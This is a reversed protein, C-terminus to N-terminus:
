RVGKTIARIRPAVRGVIEYTSDHKPSPGEENLVSRIFTTENQIKLVDFVVVDLRRFFLLDVVRRRYM